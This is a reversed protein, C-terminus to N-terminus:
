MTPRHAAAMTAMASSFWRKGPLTGTAAAARAAMATAVGVTPRRTMVERRLLQAAAANAAVVTVSHTTATHDEGTAMAAIGAIYGTNNAESDSPAARQTVPKTVSVGNAM